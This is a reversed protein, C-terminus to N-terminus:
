AQKLKLWYKTEIFAYNSYESKQKAPIQKIKTSCIKTKFLMKNMALKIHASVEVHLNCETVDTVHKIYEEISVYM